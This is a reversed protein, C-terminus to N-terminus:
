PVNEKTGMVEAVVAGVQNNMLTVGCKNSATNDSKFPSEATKFTTVPDAGETDDLGLDALIGSFRSKARDLGDEFRPPKADPQSWLPQLTAPRSSARAAGLDVLWQDIIAKNHDAFEKDNTLLEFMAKTYRLDRAAYDCEGAGVVTPTVFDGNGPAAQQM